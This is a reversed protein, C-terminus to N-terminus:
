SRKTQSHDQTCSLIVCRTLASFSRKIVSNSTIKSKDSYNSIFRLYQISHATIHLLVKTNGRRMAGCRNRMKNILHYLCLDFMKM